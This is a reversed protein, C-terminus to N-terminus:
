VTETLINAIVVVAVVTALADVLKRHSQLRCSLSRSRMPGIKCDLPMATLVVLFSAITIGAAAIVLAWRSADTIAWLLASVMMLATAGVTGVLLRASMPREDLEDVVEKIDDFLNDM